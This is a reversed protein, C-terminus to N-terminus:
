IHHCQTLSNSPFLQLALPLPPQTLPTLHAELHPATHHPSVPDVFNTNLHFISIKHVRGAGMVCCGVPFCVEGWRLGPIKTGECPFAYHEEGGGGGKGSENGM